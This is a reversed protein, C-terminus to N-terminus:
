PGLMLTIMIPENNPFQISLSKLYPEVSSNTVIIFQNDCCMGAYYEVESVFTCFCISFAACGPYVSFEPKQSVM